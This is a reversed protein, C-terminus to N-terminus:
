REGPWPRTVGVWGRTVQAGKLPVLEVGMEFRGDRLLEYGPNAAYVLAVKSESLRGHPRVRVRMRRVSPHLPTLAAAGKTRDHFFDGVDSGFLDFQGSDLREAVKMTGVLVGVLANTVPLHEVGDAGNLPTVIADIIAGADRAGLSGLYRSSDDRYKMRLVADDEWRRYLEAYRDFAKRSMTMTLSRDDDIFDWRMIEDETAQVRGRKEDAAMQAWKARSAPDAVERAIADRWTEAAGAALAEPSASARITLLSLFAVALLKKM